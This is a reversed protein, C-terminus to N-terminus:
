EHDHEAKGDRAIRALTRGSKVSRNQTSTPNRRADAHEDDMKILLWQPKDGDRFRKLAYGGKLKDGDLWVELLGDRYASAMDKPPDKDALLNRTEFFRPLYNKHFFQRV